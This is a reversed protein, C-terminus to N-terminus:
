PGGMIQWRGQINTMTYMGSVQPRMAIPGDRGIYVLIKNTNAPEYGVALVEQSQASRFELWATKFQYRKLLLFARHRAERRILSPIEKRQAASLTEIFTTPASPNYIGICTLSAALVFLVVVCGILVKRKVTSMRNPRQCLLLIMTTLKSATEKKMRGM